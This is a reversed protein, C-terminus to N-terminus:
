EDKRLYSEWMDINVHQNPEANEGWLERADFRVSYVYQPHEGRDHANTDPFVMCGHVLEVVGRKGRAYRPLRTHGPPNLNRTVVTDGPQFRPPAGAERRYPHGERRPRDPPLPTAAHSRPPMRDPSAIVHETRADLEATTVIGLEDLLMEIGALWHEYYSTSLYRAAGMREIRHRGADIVSYRGGVARNIGYVTREWPEHFVPENEEYEVPGFGHMGGLDHVGNM